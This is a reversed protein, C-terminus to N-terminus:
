PTIKVPISNDVDATLQINGGSGGYTKQWQVNGNGDLKVVTSGAEIYGGDPTQRVDAAGEGVGGSYVKAWSPVQAFSPTAFASFIFAAVFCAFRKTRPLMPKGNREGLLLSPM